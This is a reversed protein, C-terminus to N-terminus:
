KKAPSMKEMLTLKDKTSLTANEETLTKGYKDTSNVVSTRKNPNAGGGKNDDALVYKQNSEETAWKDWFEVGSQLEGKDNKYFVDFKNKDEGENSVEARGLYARQILPRDEPNVNIRELEGM